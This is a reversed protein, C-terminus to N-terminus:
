PSSTNPKPIRIPYGTNTSSDFSSALTKFSHLSVVPRTICHFTHVVISTIHACMCVYLHNCAHIHMCVYICMCVCVCVYMCTCVCVCM